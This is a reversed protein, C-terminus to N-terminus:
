FGPRVERGTQPQYNPFFVGAFAVVKLLTGPGGSDSLDLALSKKNRSDLLWFYDIASVPMGPLGSLLRYPDGAPPREIKIVEAGFDSLIVAAAPAAIYTGCDIVLLGSLLHSM